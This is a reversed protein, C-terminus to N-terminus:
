LLVQVGKFSFTGHHGNVSLSISPDDSLVMPCWPAEFEILRGATIGPRIVPEISVTVVGGSSTGGEVIRHIHNRTGDSFSFFDGVSLSFANPVENITVTDRGVGISSLNGTGDWQSGSYILGAFGRPCSLPWRHRPPVARFQRLGGRLSQLWAEWESTASRTMTQLVFECTWYMPGIDAVQPSGGASMSKSQQYTPVFPTGQIPACVPFARPFTIAM